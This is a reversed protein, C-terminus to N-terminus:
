TSVAENGNDSWFQVRAEIWILILVIIFVGYPALFMLIFKVATMITYCTEGIWGTTLQEGRFSNTEHDYFPEIRYQFFNPINVLSAILIM